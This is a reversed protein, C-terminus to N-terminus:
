DVCGGIPTKCAYGNSRCKRTAEDITSASSWGAGRQSSGVAIYVCGSDWAGVAKCNDGSQRCAREASERAEEPSSRLGSYGIAVHPTGRIKTIGGAVANWLQRCSGGELRQGPPCSIAVCASGQLVSGSGCVIPLCNNGDLREGPACSIAVCTSGQLRSGLGCVIPVCNNGDLRQGPACSIAVCTSGVLVSGTGCVVPLCTGDARQGMPCSIPVCTAAELRFGPQCTTVKPILRDLAADLQPQPPPSQAVAGAIEKLDDNGASMADLKRSDLRRAISYDMIAQDREGRRFETIARGGLATINKPDLKIVNNYDRGASVYSHQTLYAAARLNYAEIRDADSTSTDEIIRTCAPINSDIDQGRCNPWESQSAAVCYGILLPLLCIIALLHGGVASLISKGSRQAENCGLALVRSRDPVSPTLKSILTRSPYM